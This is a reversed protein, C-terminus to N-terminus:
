LLREYYTFRFIVPLFISMKDGISMTPSLASREGHDVQTMNDQNDRKYKRKTEAEQGCKLLQDYNILSLSCVRTLYIM